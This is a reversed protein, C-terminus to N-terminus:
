HIWHSGIGRQTKLSGHHTDRVHKPESVVAVVHAGAQKFCQANVPVRNNRVLLSRGRGGEVTLWLSCIKGVAVQEQCLM